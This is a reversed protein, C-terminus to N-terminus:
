SGNFAYVRISNNILSKRSLDLVYISQKKKLKLLGQLHRSGLEGAAIIVIKKKYVLVTM